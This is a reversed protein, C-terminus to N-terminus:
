CFPRTAAKSVSTFRGQWFWPTARNITSKALMRLDKLLCQWFMPGAGTICAKKSTKDPGKLLPGPVAAGSAMSGTMSGAMSGTM